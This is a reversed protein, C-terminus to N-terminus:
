VSRPSRRPRSHSDRQPASQSGRHPRAHGGIGCRADGGGRSLNICARNCVVALPKRGRQENGGSGGTLDKAEENSTADVWVHRNKTQLPSPRSTGFKWHALRPSCFLM